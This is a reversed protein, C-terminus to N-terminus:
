LRSHRTRSRVIWKSRPTTLARRLLGLERANSIAAMFRQFLGMGAYKGRVDLVSILSAEVIGSVGTGFRQTLLDLFIRLQYFECAMPFKANAESTATVDTMRWPKDGEMVSQLMAVELLHPTVGRLTNGVSPNSSDSGGNQM